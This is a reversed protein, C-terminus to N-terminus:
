AADLRAEVARTMTDLEAAQQLLDFVDDRPGLRTAVARAERVERACVRISDAEANLEAYRARRAQLRRGETLVDRRAHDDDTLTRPRASPRVAARSPFLDRWSLGVKALVDGSRCGARCCVLAMGEAGEAIALSPTRDAHVPCLAVWSHGTRRVGQLKVLVLAVPGSM